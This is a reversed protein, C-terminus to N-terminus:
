IAGSVRTLGVEGGDDVVNVSHGLFIVNVWEEAFYKQNQHYGGIPPWLQSQDGQLTHLVGGTEVLIAGWSV